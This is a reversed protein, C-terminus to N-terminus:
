SNPCNFENNMCNDGNFSNNYLWFKFDDQIIKLNNKMM